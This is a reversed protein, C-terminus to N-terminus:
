WAAPPLAYLAWPLKEMGSALAFYRGLETSDVTAPKSLWIWVGGDRLPQVLEEKGAARLAAEIKERLMTAEKREQVSLPDHQDVLWGIEPKPRQEVASAFLIMLTPVSAQDLVTRHEGMEFAYRELMKGSRGARELGVVIAESSATM